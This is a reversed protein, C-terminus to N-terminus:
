HVLYINDELYTLKAHLQSLDYDVNSEYKHM